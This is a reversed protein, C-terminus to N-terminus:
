FLSALRNSSPNNTRSSAELVEVECRAGAPDDLPAERGVVVIQRRAVGRAVLHEAVFRGRQEALDLNETLLSRENAFGVILVRISLDSSGRGAIGDLSTLLDAAVDPAGREFEITASSRTGHAELRARPRERECGRETVAFLSCVSAVQVISPLTRHALSIM